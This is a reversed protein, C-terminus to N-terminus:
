TAAAQSAAIWDELARGAAGSDLSEAARAM